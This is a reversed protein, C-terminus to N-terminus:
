LPALNLTSPLIWSNRAVTSKWVTHIFRCDKICVNMYTTTSLPYAYRFGYILRVFSTLPFGQESIKVILIQKVSTTLRANMRCTLAISHLESGRNSTQFFNAPYLHLLPPQIGKLNLRVMNSAFGSITHPAVAEQVLSTSLTITLSVAVIFNLLEFAILSAM